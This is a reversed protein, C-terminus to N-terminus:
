SASPSPSPAPTQDALHGEPALVPVSVPTTGSDATQVDLTVLGGPIAPVSPLTLETAGAALTTSGGPPVSARVVDTGTGTSGAVTFRVTADFSGTNVIQAVLVGPSDKAGAVVLLNRIQVSGLDVPVGDSTQYDASTQVPSLYSCGALALSGAV